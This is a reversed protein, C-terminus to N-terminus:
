PCASPSCFWGFRGASLCFRAHVTVATTDGSACCSCVGLLAHSRSILRASDYYGGTSTAQAEKAHGNLVFDSPVFMYNIIPTTGIGRWLIRVLATDYRNTAPLVPAAMTPDEASPPHEPQPTTVHKVWIGQWGGGLDVISVVAGRMGHWDTVFVIDM